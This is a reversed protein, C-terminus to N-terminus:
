PTVGLERLLLATAVAVGLFTAVAALSAGSFSALGCIGHGSTCGRSVRTGLGVLFGGAVLRWAPVGTHFTEGGAVTVLFLAAGLVLGLSFVLRWGRTAVLEPQQFSARRSFWSLTTTFFSSAGAVIGTTLFIAGVGLGILLGGVLFSEIGTPFFQM